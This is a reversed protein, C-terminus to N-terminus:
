DANVEVEQEILKKIESRKERELMGRKNAFKKELKIIKTILKELTNQDIDLDSM